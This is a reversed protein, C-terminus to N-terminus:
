PFQNRDILAHETGRVPEPNRCEAQGRPSRSQGSIQYSPPQQRSPRRSDLDLGAFNAREARLDFRDHFPGLSMGKQGTGIGLTKIVQELKRPLRHRAPM